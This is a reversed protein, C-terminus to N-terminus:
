DDIGMAKMIKDLKANIQKLDPGNSKGKSDDKVFCDSCYVPKGETPNFPVECRRGCKDCTVSYMKKPRSRDRDDRGGRSSGRSFPKFRGGSGRSASRGGSGGRDPKPRSRAGGRGSKGPDSRSFKRM